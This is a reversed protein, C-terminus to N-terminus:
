ADGDGSETRPKRARRDRAEIGDLRRLANRMQAESAPGDHWAGLSLGFRSLLALSESTLVLHEPAAEVRRLAYLALDPDDDDMADIFNALRRLALMARRNRKTALPDDIHEAVKTGRWRASRRVTEALLRRQDAASRLSHM